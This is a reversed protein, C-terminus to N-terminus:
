VGIVSIKKRCSVFGFLSLLAIIEVIYIIPTEGTKPSTITDTPAAVEPQEVVIVVPSFSTFEAKVTGNGVEVPLDEYTNSGNIWHRLAVKSEPTVGPVFFTVPVSGDLLTVASYDEQANVLSLDFSYISCAFTTGLLSRAQSQTLSKTSPNLYPHVIVNDETGDAKRVYAQAGIKDVRIEGVTEGRSYAEPRESHSSGSSNSDSTGTGSSSDDESIVAISAGKVPISFGDLGNVDVYHGSGSYEIISAERYDSGDAPLFVFKENGSFDDLYMNDLSSANGFSLSSKETLLVDTLPKGKPELVWLGDQWPALPYNALQLDFVTVKCDKDTNFIEKASEQSFTRESPVCMVQLAMDSGSGLEITEENHRFIKEGRFFIAPFEANRVPLDAKVWEIENPEQPPNSEGEEQSSVSDDAEQQEEVVQEPEAALAEIGLFLCLVAALVVQKMRKM